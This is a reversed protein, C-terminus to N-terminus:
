TSTHSWENKIEAPPPLLHDLEHGPKKVGTPRNNIVTLNFLMSHPLFSIKDQNGLLFQPLASLVETLTSPRPSLKSSCVELRPFLFAVWAVVLNLPMGTQVGPRLVDAEVVVVMMVMLVTMIMAMTRCAMKRTM